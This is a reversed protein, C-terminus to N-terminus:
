KGESKTEFQPPKSECRMLCLLFISKIPIIEVFMLWFLQERGQEYVQESVHKYVQGHVHYYIEQEVRDTNTFNM